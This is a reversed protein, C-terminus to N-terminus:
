GGTSTVAAHAWVVFSRFLVDQAPRLTFLWPAAEPSRPRHARRQRRDGASGGGGAELAGDTFDRGGLVAFATEDQALRRAAAVKEAPQNSRYSAFM